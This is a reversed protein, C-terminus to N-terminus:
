SGFFDGVMMTPVVNINQLVCVGEYMDVTYTSEIDDPIYKTTIKYTRKNPSELNDISLEPTPLSVREILGSEDTFGKFFVIKDGNYDTSIEVELGSIPIAGSAAYARIRLGGRSPNENFFNKYIDSNKFNDDNVNYTM